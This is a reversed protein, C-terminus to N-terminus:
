RFLLYSGFFANNYVMFALIAGALIWTLVFFVRRKSSLPSVDDLPRLGPSRGAFILILFAMLYFGILVMIIVSIYTLWRHARPSLAANSIHGGDLQWAPLLNIFTILFGISYSFYLLSFLPGVVVSNPPANKMAGILFSTYYDSGGLQANSPFSSIPIIHASVVAIISVVFTVVLGAIPGSLGLDFLSDRNVPPDRASIVAGFTPWIGPIGPIFYPWSSDMKHYWSAIKHSLEHTGLIGLLSAAYIAAITLEEAVSLHNTTPDSYFYARIFGDALIAALTAVLLILPTRYKRTSQAPKRFVILLYGGETRRLAATDGYKRLEEILSLFNSKTDAQDPGLNFEVVGDERLYENAVAFRRHVEDTIRQIDGQGRPETGTATM